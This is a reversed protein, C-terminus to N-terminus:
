GVLFDRRTIRNVVSERWGLLSAECHRHSGPTTRPHWTYFARHPPGVPRETMM